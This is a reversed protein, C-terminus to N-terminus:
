WNIHSTISTRSANCYSSVISKGVFCRCCLGLVYACSNLRSYDFNALSCSFCLSNRGVIISYQCLAVFRWGDRCCCSGVDGIRIKFCFLGHSYTFAVCCDDSSVSYDKSALLLKTSWHRLQECCRWNQVVRVVRRVAVSWFVSYQM